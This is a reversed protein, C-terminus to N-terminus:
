ASIPDKNQDKTQDKEWRRLAVILRIEDYTIEPPLAEKLPKLWEVGHQDCAAEIVSRRTKDVWASQFELDGREVLSSVLNIVTSVQRQRAAAIEEFSKGEALLRLTEAEPSVKKSPGQAARTGARFRNLADLILQGYSEAKREGIGPIQRLESFLKPKRRCLEELLTDHMVVYAPVSQERATTRRWERLYDRLEAEEGLGAPGVPVPPPGSGAEATRGGRTRRKRPEFSVAAELWAPTVGCVDCAACSEWKPREGFHECIQRHRCQKSEVFARIIHYRQWARDREAADTIQNAFYGLLGADQKKWLLICDAPEGDRGARGAEQYYQEISKPLALHIVARVTAKNIGLGFAITGVLIRVEDSMWREQNRRRESTDM